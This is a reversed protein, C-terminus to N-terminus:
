GNAEDEKVESEVVFFRNQDSERENMEAAVYEARERSLFMRTYSSKESVICYVKM